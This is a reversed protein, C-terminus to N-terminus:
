KQFDTSYKKRFILIDAILAIIKWLTEFFFSFCCNGYM